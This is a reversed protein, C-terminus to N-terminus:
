SWKRGGLSLDLVVVDWDQERVIRLPDPATGAEGFVIPGVKENFIKKVGERVVEHDDIILIRKMTWQTLVELKRRKAVSPM